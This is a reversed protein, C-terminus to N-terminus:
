PVVTVPWKGARVLRVALSGILRHGVNASAGVIVVDAKREAAVRGIETFPDGRMALFEASVGSEAAFAHVEARLDGAVADLGEEVAPIASPTFATMSPTTEIFVVVLAAGQRRAVGAAFAGARMSSPSGDVGALVVSPGDTGIEADSV